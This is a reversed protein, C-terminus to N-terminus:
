KALHGIDRAIVLVGLTHKGQSIKRRNKEMREEEMM